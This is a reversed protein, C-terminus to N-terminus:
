RPPAQPHTEDELDVEEVRMDAEEDEGYEDEEDTPIFLLGEELLTQLLTVVEAESASQPLGAPVGLATLRAWPLVRHDAVDAALSCAADGSVAFSRGDVFLCGHRHSSSVAAGPLFAFRSGEHRCLEGAEAAQATVWAWEPRAELREPEPGGRPTTVHCGFWAAVDARTTPLSAVLAVAADVAAATLQGPRPAPTLWPDSWREAARPDADAAAAAWSLFLERRSPALFGVSYTFGEDLSVGHHAVGPPLYLMDGAELVFRQQPVFDRLVAVDLGPTFAESQLPGYAPDSSIDWAKRGDAQLLMVDYQDSHAGVTSGPAPAYSVQIDDLRWSPLFSFLPLLADAVHPVCRDVGNVLLTWHTDPLSAFDAEQFPGRRQVLCV